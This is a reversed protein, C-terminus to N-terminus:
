QTNILFCPTIRSSNYTLCFTRYLDGSRGHLHFCNYRWVICKEIRLTTSLLPVILSAFLHRSSLAGPLPFRDIKKPKYALIEDITAPQCLIHSFIPASPDRSICTSCQPCSAHAVEICSDVLGECSSPSHTMCYKRGCRVNTM